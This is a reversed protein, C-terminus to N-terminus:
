KTSKQCAYRAKTKKYTCFYSDWKGDFHINSFGTKDNPSLHINNAPFFSGIINWNKQGENQLIYATCLTLSVAVKDQTRIMIVMITMTTKAKTIRAVHSPTWKQSGPVMHFGRQANIPQTRLNTHGVKPMLLVEPRDHLGLLM